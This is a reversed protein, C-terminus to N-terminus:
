SLAFTHRKGICAATGISFDHNTGWVGAPIIMSDNSGFSLKISRMTDVIILIIKPGSVVVAASNGVLVLGLCPYSHFISINGRIKLGRM